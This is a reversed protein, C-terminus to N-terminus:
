MYSWQEGSPIEVEPVRKKTIDRVFKTVGIEIGYTVIYLVCHYLVGYVYEHQIHHQSPKIMFIHKRM